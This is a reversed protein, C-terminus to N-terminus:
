KKKFKKLISNYLKKFKSVQKKADDDLKEENDIEPDGLVPM